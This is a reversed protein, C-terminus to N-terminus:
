PKLCGMVILDWSKCAPSMLPATPWIAEQWSLFYSKRKEKKPKRHAPWRKAKRQGETKAEGTIIRAMSRRNSQKNKRRLCQQFKQSDLNLYVWNDIHNKIFLMVIVLDKTFRPHKNPACTTWQNGQKAELIKLIWISKPYLSWSRM